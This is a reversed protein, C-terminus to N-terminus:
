ATPGATTSAPCKWSSRCTGSAHTRLCQGFAWRASTATASTIFEALTRYVGDATRLDYGAAFAHQTDLCVQMRRLRVSRVIEGLQRLTSGVAGGMGASNEAILAARGPAARLVRACRVVIRAALDPPATNRHSGVHFVVGAAGLLHAAGLDAVLAAESRALLDASDSALNVLYPAHIFVPGIGTARLRERFAAVEADSYTRRKWSVPAGNFIQICEAGIAVARDLARDLGGATKVHAGLRM